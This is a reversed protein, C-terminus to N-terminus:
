TGATRPTPAVGTTMWELRRRVGAQASDPHTLIFFENDRIAVLVQEAVASPELGVEDSLRALNDIVAIREPEVAKPVSRPRNREADTMRTKVPGPALLSVSVPSNRSRLEIDLSETLGLVAFKSACYPTMTPTGSNFAAVSATNVIHAEEQQELYPLFTRCGNLVGFFNVDMVWRWASEPIALFTGGTEVGANNCLIDVRGFHEITTEALAMISDADSVDVRVGLATAGGAAVVDTARDLADQEIDAIVVRMGQAAFREVMAFGIGSAGGTVVATKGVFDKM